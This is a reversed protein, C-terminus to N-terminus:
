VSEDTLFVRSLRAAATVGDIVNLHLDAQLDRKISVAGSCGLILNV